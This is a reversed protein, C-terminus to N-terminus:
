GRELGLLEAILRGTDALSPQSDMTARGATALRAALQPENVIRRMAHAAADLDPEAWRARAPYVGEGNTVAVLAADVLLSNDDDMFDLNGSYRTAITPTGLWMAEALHLGLGESRHLSVLADLSRIFAMHDGRDLHEDWVVIDPRGEAAARVAEHQPWRQDGNMTKVVLLPGEDPGFAQRFARIAGIPNKRETVSFHDLVVGFVFRDDAEALPAFSSRGRASVDPAPLPIPVHRVPITAVRRFADAVFRSGAWVEDVKPLVERMARPIYELEWFWYGILRRSATFVEPHDQELAEFQDANVVAVTTDFEMHRDLHISGSVKPSGTRDHGLLASPVPASSLAGAFRRVIDGLSSEYRFYGVVNLGDRRVPSTIEFAEVGTSGDGLPPVLLPLGDDVVARRTWTRFSPADDTAPRPFAAILDRRGAHLRSWFRQGLFRRFDGPSLWPSPVSAPDAGDVVRRVADDIRVGGPASLPQRAGAIQHAAETIARARDPHGVLSVRARRQERPQLSWPTEADFGSLDLLAPPGDSWRFRGAGIREDECSDGEFLRWALELWRGVASDDCTRDSLRQEIWRVAGLGSDAFTAVRDSFVGCRALDAADPASGDVALPELTRPVLRMARCGRWLLSVDDLVGVEGVWMLTVTGAGAAVLHRVAALAGLWEAVVPPRSVLVRHWDADRETPQSSWPVSTRPRLQPDGCWVAVIDVPGSTAEVARALADPRHTGNPVVLCVHHTESRHADGTARGTM